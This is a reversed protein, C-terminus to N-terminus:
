TGGTVEATPHGTLASERLAVAVEVGTRRGSALAGNISATDRHDGCVWVGADRRVPRQPPDLTGPDQRPQAHAIRDIRLRNWGDVATGFWGRLQARIAADLAEDDFAEGRGSPLSANVLARGAPAYGPAVDSLVAVNNVPGTRGADGDLVLVPRGATPSAPADFWVATSSLSGPAPLGPLLRAAQPGDVAVVVAAADVRVGGTLTVADGAVDVVRTGLRVTGLPLGAALQEPIAQMGAAPVVTPGAVFSGLVFHMFRASVALEADLTIGTLFPRLFGDVIRDSLGADRLAAATSQGDGPTGDRDLGERLLRRSRLLLRAMAVGDVPTALGGRLAGLAAVPHRRPDGVTVAHGDRQVIAGPYFPRLDLAELDLQAQAEPYGALLVQFGRDLLFGDVRDTRVRGGVGDSAELVQVPLGRAGLERACALGALGAGVVVVPLDPSPCV